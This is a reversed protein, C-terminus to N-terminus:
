QKRLVPQVTKVFEIAVIGANKRHINIKYVTGPSMTVAAWSKCKTKEIKICLNTISHKM